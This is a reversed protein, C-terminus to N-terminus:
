GLVVNSCRYLVPTDSGSALALGTQSPFDLRNWGEQLTLDVSGVFPVDCTLNFSSAVLLYSHKRSKTDMRWYNPSARLVITEDIDSAFETELLEYILKLYEKQYHSDERIKEIGHRVLHATDTGEALDLAQKAHEASLSIVLGEGIRSFPGMSGVEYFVRFIDSM